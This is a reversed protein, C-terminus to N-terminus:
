DRYAKGVLPDSTRQGQNCCGEMKAKYIAVTLKM